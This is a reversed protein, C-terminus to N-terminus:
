HAFTRDIHRPPPCAGFSRAAAQLDLSNIQGDRNIDFPRQTTSAFRQAVLQLDISNVSWDGNVSAAEFADTCGDGDTDAQTPDTAWYKVEYPDPLGDADTDVAHADTGLLAEVSDAIGDGDADDARAPSVPTSAASTPDSGAICEYGDTIRDGDSDINTPSTPGSGNCGAAEQADTLTDNDRDPDCADGLIDGNPRTIDPGTVAGNTSIPGSDTNEQWPNNALPCNDIDQRRVGNDQAVSQM